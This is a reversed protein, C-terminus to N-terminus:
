PLIFTVMEDRRFSVKRRAASIRLPIHRGQSVSEATKRALARLFPKISFSARKPGKQSYAPSLFPFLIAAPM